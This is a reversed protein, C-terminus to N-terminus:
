YKLIKKFLSTSKRVWYRDKNKQTKLLFFQYFRDFITRPDKYKKYDRGLKKAIYKWNPNWIYIKRFYDVGYQDFYDLVKEDWWYIETKSQFTLDIGQKKYDNIWFEPIIELEEKELGYMHHYMRFISLPSKDPYTVREYCQYWRHKSQMREWSTYQFHMVKVDEINVIKSDVPVPIRTTHIKNVHSHDYGDDMYGGPFYCYHWFLKFDSRINAWQFNFVTGPKAQLMKGWCISRTFNPTLIEDADLAILLKQGEIKRAEDILLKQREPENFTNSNNEILVVKPYKRAIERSGDTSMQDAVIIYDAWLSASQLFRDLIWAENKIPTLCIITPKM